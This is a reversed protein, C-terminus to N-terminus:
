DCTPWARDFRERVVPEDGVAGSSAHEPRARAARRDQVDPGRIRGQDWNGMAITGGPRCVRRLEVAVLEPRPAFMAGYISAVTDFSGNPYALSEADGEDFRADLGEAAARRAPGGRRPQHRHRRRHRPRRPSGRHPGLQGSGCAVDLFTSGPRVGIRDLFEVASSEMFRSFYDYNGDMWMAKLRSKLTTSASQTDSMSM